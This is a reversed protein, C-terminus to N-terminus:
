SRYSVAPYPLRSLCFSSLCDDVVNGLAVDKFNLSFVLPGALPGVLLRAFLGTSLCPDSVIIQKNTRKKREEEWDKERDKERDKTRGSDRLKKERDKEKERDKREGM